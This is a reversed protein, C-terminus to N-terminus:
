KNREQYLKIYPILEEPEYEEMDEAFSIMDLAVDRPPDTLVDPYGGEVANRMNEAVLLTVPNIV